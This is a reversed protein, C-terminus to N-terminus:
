GPVRRAGVLRDRSAEEGPRVIEEREIYSRELEARAHPHLEAVPAVPFNKQAHLHLAVGEAALRSEVRQRAHEIAAREFRREEALERQAFGEREHEDVDIV